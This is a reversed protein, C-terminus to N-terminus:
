ALCGDVLQLRMGLWRMVPVAMSNGLASMRLGRPTRERVDTWGDPFGMARETEVETLTRVYEDLVYPDKSKRVSLLKDDMIVGGAIMETMGRPEAVLHGALADNDCAGRNGIGGSIITGIKREVLVHGAHAGTESAARGFGSAVLSGIKEGTEGGAQTDGRVSEGVLFLSAAPRWDGIHGVLFLRRRRQPVGFHQADLVRWALGHGGDGPEVIGATGWEWRHLGDRKSFASLVTSFDEGENCSLLGPVNELIFWRPRVRDVLRAFGLTLNGRPDAIGERWGASSFSQCPTGGVIVDVRGDFDAQTFDGHLRVGGFRSSLVERAFGDIESMWRCEWGLGRFAHEAAGIGSCISGFRM